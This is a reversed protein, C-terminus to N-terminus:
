FAPSATTVLEKPQGDHGVRVKGSYEERTESNFGRGYITYATKSYFRIGWGDNFGQSLIAGVIDAVMSASLDPRFLFCDEGPEPEEDYSGFKIVRERLTHTCVSYGECCGESEYEAYKCFTCIQCNIENTLELYVLRQDKKM